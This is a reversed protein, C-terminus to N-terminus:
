GESFFVVMTEEGVRITQIKKVCVGQGGPLVWGEPSHYFSTEELESKEEVKKKNKRLRRMSSRVRRHPLVAGWIDVKSELAGTQWNWIRMYQEGGASILTTPRDDPIHLASIFGDSGFLYRDIIYSKPFNSVRIHEDRDATIIYKQDPSLISATIVSVHGLLYTADPNLTPDSQLALHLPRTEPEPNPLLPYLYVDGVKDSIVISNDPTFCIDSPKKTIRRSSSIEYSGNDSLSHVVLAKDDSISAIHRTDPSIAIHRILASPHDSSAHSTSLPPSPLVSTSQSTHIIISSGSALVLRSSSSSSSSALATVPYPIDIDLDAM